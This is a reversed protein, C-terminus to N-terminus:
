KNVVDTPSDAMRATINVNTSWAMGLYPVDDLYVFGLIYCLFM